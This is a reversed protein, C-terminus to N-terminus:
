DDVRRRNIKEVSEESFNHDKPKEPKYGAALLIQNARPQHCRKGSLLPRTKSINYHTYIPCNMCDAGSEYCAVGTDTWRTRVITHPPM